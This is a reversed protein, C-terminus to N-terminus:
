RKAATPASSGAAPAGKTLELYRKKDSDYKANIESVQKKKADLLQRQSNIELESNKIDDQLKAPIPKKTYFEKESELKQRRKQAEAIRKESDQIAEQNDKLARSRADEIDKESSYTNLLAQNKRREERATQELELMKKREAERQARQEPTLAAESRKVVQGQRSLEETEKGLCEKPPLQTYYVKGKADVCKFMRGAPQQAWVPNAVAACAIAAALLGRTAAAASVGRRPAAGRPGSRANGCGTTRWRNRLM